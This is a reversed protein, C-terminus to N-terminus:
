GSVRNNGTVAYELALCAGGATAWGAWLAVTFAAVVLCALGAVVLLTPLLPALRATLSTPPTPTM